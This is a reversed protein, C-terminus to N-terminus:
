MTIGAINVREQRYTKSLTERIIFMKLNCSMSFTNKLIYMLQIAVETVIDDSKISAGM